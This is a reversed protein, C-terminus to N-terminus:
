PCAGLVLSLSQYTIFAILAKILSLSQAGAGAGILSLSQFDGERQYPVPEGELM